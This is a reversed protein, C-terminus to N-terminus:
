WALEANSTTNSAASVFVATTSSATCSSVRTRLSTGFPSTMRRRLHRGSSITTYCGSDGSRSQHPTTERLGQFQYFDVLGEALLSELVSWVRDRAMEVSSLRETAQATFAADWLETFDEIGLWLLDKVLDAM